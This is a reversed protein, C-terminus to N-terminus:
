VAKLERQGLNYGMCLGDVYASLWDGLQGMPLRPSVETSEGDRYLRFRGYAKGLTYDGHTIRNIVNVKDELDARTTREM